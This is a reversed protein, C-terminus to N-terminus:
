VLHIRLEHGDGSRQLRREVSGEEFDGHGDTHRSNKVDGHIQEGRGHGRDRRHHKEIRRICCQGGDGDEIHIVLAFQGKGGGHGHHDGIGVAPRTDQMHNHGTANDAPGLAQRDRHSVPPAGSKEDSWWSSWPPVIEELSLVFDVSETKIAASPM